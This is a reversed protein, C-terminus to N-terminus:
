ERLREEDEGERDVEKQPRVEEHEARSQGNNLKSVRGRSALRKTQEKISQESSKGFPKM